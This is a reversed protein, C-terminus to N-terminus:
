EEGVILCLIDGIPGLGRGYPDDAFFGDSVESLRVVSPILVDEEELLFLRGPHAAKETPLWVRRGSPWKGPLAPEWEMQTAYFRGSYHM